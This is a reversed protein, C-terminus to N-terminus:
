GGSGSTAPVIVSSLYSAPRDAVDAVAAVREGPLGLLEGLVSGAMRGAARLEGAVAPMRGGGKYVVVARTRDALADGLPRRTTNAPLVVFSQQGDVLVTGSRAALEQFAMIGPVTIVPTAPRGAAVAAAVSSFTSYVNPDGITVFAVEEGADLLDTVRRAAAALAGARDAPDPAMAFVLREVAVDPAAERVITEARGIADASTCPAVVATARRLARVARVTVLDAAGPGVGVGVLRGPVPPDTAMPPGAEATVLREIAERILDAESRHTRDAVAELRRKLAEPLYISTKRM